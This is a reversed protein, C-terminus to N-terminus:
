RSRRDPKELRKGSFRRELIRMVANASFGHIILSFLIVWSTIAWLNEANEFKVLNTAFALYFLSGIGKIGFFSVAAKEQLHMKSNYISAYASLPRIILLVVFAILLNQWNFTDFVFEVLTGGFLILVVVMLMRELQDTFSHLKVHYEHEIEYNRLTVACVFVAIFGYGHLVETTGYVLITSSFAVFGDRTVLFNKKRPLFFLLFALSRGLLFGVVLGITIRFIFDFSFWNWLASGDGAGTALAIALWTFPFAMGDNLGAEATLYFRVDNRKKELPPGVQVDDALVPDTPALVSGLLIAAAIDLELWLIGVISVLAISLLMTISVLRLPIRWKRFSFPEDIKLGTGMLSVILMMETLRVSFSTYRVPDAEPLFDLTSYLIIGLAVYIISYSVRVLATIGPMWAMALLAVGLMALILVYNEMM